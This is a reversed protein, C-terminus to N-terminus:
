PNNKRSVHDNGKTFLEYDVAVFGNVPTASPNVNCITRLDRDLIHMVNDYMIYFYMIDSIGPAAHYSVGQTVEPQSSSTISIAYRNKSWTFNPYIMDGHPVALITENIDNLARSGDGDGITVECFMIM